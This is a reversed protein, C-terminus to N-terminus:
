LNYTTIVTGRNTVIVMGISEIVILTSYPFKIFEKRLQPFCKLENSDKTLRIVDRNKIEMTLTEMDYNTREALRTEFHNTVRYTMM